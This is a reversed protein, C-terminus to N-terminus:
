TRIPCLTCVRHVDSSEPRESQSTSLPKPDKPPPQHLIGVSKTRPFMVLAYEPLGLLLSAELRLTYPTLSRDWRCATKSVREWDRLLAPISLAGDAELMLGAQSPRSLVEPQDIVSTVVPYSICRAGSTDQRKHLVTQQVDPANPATCCHLLKSREDADSIDTAVRGYRFGRVATTSIGKAKPAWLAPRM